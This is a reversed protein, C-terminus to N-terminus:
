RKREQRAFDIQRNIMLMARKLHNIGAREESPALPSSLLSPLRERLDKARQRDVRELRDLEQRLKRAGSMGITKDHMIADVLQPNIKKIGLERLVGDVIFGKGIVRVAQMGAKNHLDILLRDRKLPDKEKQAASFNVSHYASPVKRLVLKALARNKQQLLLINARARPVNYIIDDAMLRQIKKNRGGGFEHPKPELRKNHMTNHM